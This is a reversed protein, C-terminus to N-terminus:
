TGVLETILIIAGITLVMWGFLTRLKKEPVKASLRMGLLSGVVTVATIALVPGWAINVATLYGGLGTFSKMAIVLLSTAAAARMPLGGLLALAPVVLFGGGAGVIGTVLGVIGGELAIKGWKRRPAATAAPPEETHSSLTGQRGAASDPPQARDRSQAHPDAGRTGRLMAIATALMMIAFAIMLVTGPLRGGVLGGAFAGIMSAAGFTLGTRWRVLGRRAQGVVSVASTVGVIFLSSAIAEKPPMGAVYTLLPVALITGGGGLMGLTVGIGIALMLTVVLPATIM